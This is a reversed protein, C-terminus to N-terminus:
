LDGPQQPIRQKLWVGELFHESVGLKARATQIGDLRRSTLFKGFRVQITQQCMHKSDKKGREGGLGLGGKHDM